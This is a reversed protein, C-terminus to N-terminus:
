GIALVSRLSSRSPGVSASQQGESSIRAVMLKRKLVKVRTLMFPNTVINNTGTTVLQPGASAEGVM